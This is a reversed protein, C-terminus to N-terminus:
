LNPEPFFFLFRILVASSATPFRIWSLLAASCLHQYDHSIAVIPRNTPDIFGFELRFEVGVDVEFGPRRGYVTRQLQPGAM